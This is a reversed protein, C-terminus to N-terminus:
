RRRGLHQEHAAPFLSLPMARRAFRDDLGCSPRQEDDRGPQEENAATQRAYARPERHQEDSEVGHDSADLKFDASPM